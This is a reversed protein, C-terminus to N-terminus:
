PLDFQLGIVGHSKGDPISFVFRIGTVGGPEESLNYEQRAVFSLLQNTVCSFQGSNFMYSQKDLSLSDSNTNGASSLLCSERHYGLSCNLVSRAAM